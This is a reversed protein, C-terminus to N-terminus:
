DGGAPPQAGLDKTAQELTSCITGWYKPLVMSVRYGWDGGMGAVPLQKEIRGRRDRFALVFRVSGNLVVPGLIVSEEPRRSMDVVPILALESVGGIEVIQTLLAEVEAWDTAASPEHFSALTEVTLGRLVLDDYKLTKM